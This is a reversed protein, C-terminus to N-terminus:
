DIFEIKVNLIIRRLSDDEDEMRQAWPNAKVIWAAGRDYSVMIGGRGIVDAIQMEKLTIAEWSTDRYWISATQTIANNFDDSAMDYTIYPLEAEDPVSTESYAGIGFGAWFSHIAEMKNM